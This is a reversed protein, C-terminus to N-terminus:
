DDSPRTLMFIHQGRPHKWLKFQFQLLTEFFLKHKWKADLNVGEKSIDIEDRDGIAMAALRQQIEMLLDEYDQYGEPDEEEDPYAASQVRNLM